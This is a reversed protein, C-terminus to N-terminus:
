GALVDKTASVCFNSLSFGHYVQNPLVLTRESIDWSFTANVTSATNDFLEKVILNKGGCVFGLKSERFKNSTDGVWLASRSAESASAALSSAFVTLSIESLSPELSTAIM